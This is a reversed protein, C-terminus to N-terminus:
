EYAYIKAYQIIIRHFYFLNYWAAIALADDIGDLKGLVGFFFM